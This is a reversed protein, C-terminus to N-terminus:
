SIIGPSTIVVQSFAVFEQSKEQAVLPSIGVIARAM